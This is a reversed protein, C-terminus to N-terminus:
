SIKGIISQLQSAYAQRVQTEHTALEAAIVQESHSTIAAIIEGQWRQLQGACIAEVAQEHTAGPPITAGQAFADM